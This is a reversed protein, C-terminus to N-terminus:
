FMKSEGDRSGTVIEPAGEGIGLGGCGDICNIIEQHGKVSYVPAHWNELDRFLGLCIKHFYLWSKILKWQNM